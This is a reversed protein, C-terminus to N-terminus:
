EILEKKLEKLIEISERPILSVENINKLKNIKKDILDIINSNLEKNEEYLKNLIKVLEKSSIYGPKIGDYYREGTKEDIIADTPFDTLISKGTRFRKETM